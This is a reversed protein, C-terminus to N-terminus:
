TESRPNTIKIEFKYNGIECEHNQDPNRPESGQFAHNQEPTPLEWHRLSSELSRHIRHPIPYPRPVSGQVVEDTVVDGAATRWANRLADTKIRKTHAVSAAFARMVTLACVGSVKM